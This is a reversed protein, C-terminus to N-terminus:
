RDVQRDMWRWIPKVNLDKMGKVPAPKSCLRVIEGHYHQKYNQQASPCQSRPVPTIFDLAAM